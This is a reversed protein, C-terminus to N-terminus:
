TVIIQNDKVSLQITLDRKKQSHQYKLLTHALPNEIHKEIQKRVTRAGQQKKVTNQAILNLVKDDINITFEHHSIQKLFEKVQIKVIKKIDQFNLDNFILIDDLRNILENSLEKTLIDMIQSQEITVPQVSDTFGLTTKKRFYNSGINSTLIIFTNTFDIKRGIADTLYGEDLIQLLLNHVKPHAKEIEDFLVLSYPNNNVQDALLSEERYGVYGAPSGILKSVNHSETFESMDIRILKNHSGFIESSLVKALATKGVGSPGLFIFSGLPRKYPRIGVKTRRIHNCLEQIVHNQGIITREINKEINLLHQQEKEKLKQLPIQTRTSLTQLVDEITLEHAFIAKTETYKKKLRKLKQLLKRENNQLETALEYNEQSLAAHKKTSTLSIEDKILQIKKLIGTNSKEVSCQAAAEDLIDIAKDPLNYHPIYRQSLEVIDKIINSSIKVQHYTEYNNKIGNIIDISQKTTPEHVHIAQFRRELAPDKEIHKKYEDFTTAGICRIQGRALAPKLINAADMSGSTSGTGILNHVEDIFLIIHPNQKLEDLVQKLRAEFEGRYMTGSVLATLDLSLIKKGILFDPVDNQSIKKALGEVIATKGVGPKGLLIPNNKTRRGLINIARAIETDRGIVPDITIQIKKNSLDTVFQSLQLTPRSEDELTFLQEQQDNLTEFSATIEPFRSTSKLVNSIQTQLSDIAIKKKLIREFQKGELLSALLHETGVYPHHLRYAILVSKEIITIVSPSFITDPDQPDMKQHSKKIITPTIKLKRLLEAGLSGQQQTLAILLDSIGVMRSNKSAQLYAKNLTNKYHLTFRDSIM